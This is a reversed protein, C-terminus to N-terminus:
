QKDCNNPKSLSTSAGRLIESFSVFSFKTLSFLKMFNSFFVPLSYFPLREDILDPEKQQVERVWREIFSSYSLNEEVMGLFQTSHYNASKLDLRIAIPNFDARYASKHISSCFSSSSLDLQSDPIQQSLKDKQQVYFQIAKQKVRSAITFFPSYKGGRTGSREKGEKEEGKKEQSENKEQEGQKRQCLCNLDRVILAADPHCIQLSRSLLDLDETFPSRWKYWQRLKNIDEPTTELFKIQQKDEEM